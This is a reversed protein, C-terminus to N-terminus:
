LKQLAWIITETSNLIDVLLIQHLTQNKGHSIIPKMNLQQMAIGVSYIVHLTGSVMMSGNPKLYNTILNM